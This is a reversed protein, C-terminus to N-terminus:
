NSFKFEAHYPNITLIMLSLNVFAFSTLRIKLLADTAYIFRITAKKVKVLEKFM